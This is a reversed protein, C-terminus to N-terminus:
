FHVQDTLNKQRIMAKDIIKIAVRKNTEVNVALKVKAFTGEGITQGLRYKDVTMAFGM